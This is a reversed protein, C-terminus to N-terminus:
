RGSKVDVSVEVSGGGWPCICASLGGVTTVRPVYTRAVPFYLGFDSEHTGLPDGSNWLCIGDPGVQPWSLSHTTDTELFQLSMCAGAFVLSYTKQQVADMGSVKHAVTLTRRQTELYM